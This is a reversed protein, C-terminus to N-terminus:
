LTMIFGNMKFENQYVDSFINEGEAKEGAFRMAMATFEARTVDREPEFKGNGVGAIIGESALTNVANKYWANEDVDIFININDTNKNEIFNYFIQAAEGRTINKEPAMTGDPYGNIYANHTLLEIKEWVAYLDINESPMKFIDGAKYEVDGNEESSWGIFIMGEPITFMNDKVTVERGPYYNKDKEVEDGNHYKVYYGDYSSGGGSGGSSSKKSWHATFTLDGIISGAAINLDKKPESQGSYTWGDFTYGSKTPNKLEINNEVTYSTPNENNNEGGDLEYNISYTIPSYDAEVIINSIPKVIDETVNWTGTYGNKEPVKPFDSVLLTSLKSVYKTNIINNDAKFTVSYPNQINVEGTLPINNTNTWGLADFESQSATWVFTNTEGAKSTYVTGDKLKWDLSIYEYDSWNDSVIETEGFFSLLYESIFEESTDYVEKLTIVEYTNIDSEYESAAVYYLNEPAKTLDVHIYYQKGTSTYVTKDASYWPGYWSDGVEKGDIDLQYYESGTRGEDEFQIKLINPSKGFNFVGQDNRDGTSDYWKYWFFVDGKEEGALPHNIIPEIQTEFYVNIPIKVTDGSNVVWEKWTFQGNKRAKVKFKVEPEELEGGSKITVTDSTVNSNLTLEKGNMIWIAKTYGEEINVNESIEPLTYSEDFSWIGNDEVYCISQNYLKKQTEKISGTATESEYFNVDIPYSITDIDAQNGGAKIMFTDYVDKNPMVETRPPYEFGAGSTYFKFAKSDYGSVDTSEVIITRIPLYNLNYNGSWQTFFAESGITKVSEPIVVTLKVDAFACAFVRNGISELGDPLTFDIIDSSNNYKYKTTVFNLSTCGLFASSGITKLTDPM